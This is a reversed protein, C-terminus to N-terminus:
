LQQFVLKRAGCMQASGKCGFLRSMSCSTRRTKMLRFTRGVAESAAMACIFRMRAKPRRPFGSCSIEPTRIKLERAKTSTKSPPLVVDFGNELADLAVVSMIAILDIAHFGDFLSRERIPRYAEEALRALLLKKKLM